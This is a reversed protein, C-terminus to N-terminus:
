VDLNDFGEDSIVPTLEEDEARNGQPVHKEDKLRLVVQRYDGGGTSETTLDAFRSDNAIFLHVIRRFYPNMPPLAVRSGTRRIFDAKREAIGCVKDERAKRYGDVDLIIFPRKESSLSRAIAKVLHQIANLTEGHWGIVRSAEPSDIDVRTCDEEVKVRVDDFPLSLLTLLQGTIDKLAQEDMSSLCRLVTSEPFCFFGGYCM